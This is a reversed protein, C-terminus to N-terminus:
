YHASRNIMTTPNQSPFRDGLRLRTRAIDLQPHQIVPNASAIQVFVVVSRYCRTDRRVRQRTDLVRYNEAVLKAAFHHGTACRNRIKRRTIQDCDFGRFGAASAKPARDALVIMARRECDVAIVAITPQGLVRDHAARHRVAQRATNRRQLAREDLRERDCPVRCVAAPELGALGGYNMTRTRDSDAHAERQLLATDLDDGHVWRRLATQHERTEAHAYCDIWGGAIGDGRNAIQGATAARM